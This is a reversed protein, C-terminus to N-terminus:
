QLIRFPKTVFQYSDELRILEIGHDDSEFEKMLEDLLEETKKPEEEINEELEQVEVDDVTLENTQEDSNNELEESVSNERYKLLEVEDFVNSKILEVRDYFLLCFSLILLLTGITILIIDKNKVIKNVM